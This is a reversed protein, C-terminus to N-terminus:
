SKRLVRRVATEIAKTKKTAKHWATKVKDARVVAILLSWTIRGKVTRESFPQTTKTM